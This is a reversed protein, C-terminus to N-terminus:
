RAALERLRGSLRKAETMSWASSRAKRRAAEIAQRDGHPAFYAIASRYAPRQSQPILAVHDLRASRIVRVVEGGITRHEVKSTTFGVSLGVGGRGAAAVLMRAVPEDALDAEVLLGLEHDISLRLTGDATSALQGGQHRSELRVPKERTIAALADHWVTVDFTEALERRDHACRVPVSVGPAAVGCLVGAYKRSLPQAVGRRVWDPANRLKANLAAPDLIACAREIIV